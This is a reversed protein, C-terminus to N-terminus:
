TDMWGFLFKALRGLWHSPWYPYHVALRTVRGAATVRTHKVVSLRTFVLIVKSPVYVDLYGSHRHRYDPFEAPHRRWGGQYNQMARTVLIQAIPMSM